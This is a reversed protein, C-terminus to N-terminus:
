DWLIAVFIAYGIRIRLKRFVNRGHQNVEPRDILRAGFISLSPHRIWIKMMSRFQTDRPDFVVWHFYNQNVTRKFSDFGPGALEATNRASLGQWFRSPRYIAPGDEVELGM